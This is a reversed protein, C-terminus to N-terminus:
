EKVEDFSKTLAFGTQYKELLLWSDYEVM